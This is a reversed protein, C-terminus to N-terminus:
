RKIENIKILKKEQVSRSIMECILTNQELEEILKTDLKNKLIEFIFNNIMIQFYGYHFNQISFFEYTDRSSVYNNELFLNINNDFDNLEILGKNGRVEFTFEKSTSSLPPNCWFIELKASINNKFNLAAVLYDDHSNIKGRSQVYVSEITSCAIRRIIDVDHPTLWYALNTKGIVRKVRVNNSNRRANIHRIDGISNDKLYEFLANFKPNYRLVHCTKIVKKYDRFLNIIKQSDKFNDALPKELIIHKKFNVASIVPELRIWEPTAILVVDVNFDELFNSFKGSDYVELAYKESIKKCTKSSNGVFGILKALPNEILLKAYLEAMYGTGFIVFNLKKM